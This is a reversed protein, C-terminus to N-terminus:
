SFLVQILVFPILYLFDSFANEPLKTSKKYLNLFFSYDKKLVTEFGLNTEMIQQSLSKVCCEPQSVAPTAESM